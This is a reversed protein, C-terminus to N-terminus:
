SVLNNILLLIETSPLVHNMWQLENCHDHFWRLFLVGIGHASNSCNLIFSRVWFWRPLLVFSRRRRRAIAIRHSMQMASLLSPSVCMLSPRSETTQTTWSESRWKLTWWGFRARSKASNTPGARETMLGERTRM